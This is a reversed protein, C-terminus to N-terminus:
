VHARGIEPVPEGETQTYSDPIQDRLERYGLFGLGTLAALLVGILCRRYKRYDMLECGRRLPQCLQRLTVYRAAFQRPMLSTACHAVSYKVKRCGRFFPPLM